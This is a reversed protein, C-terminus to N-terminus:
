KSGTCGFIGMFGRFLWDGDTLTPLEELIAAAPGGHCVQVRCVMGARQMIERTRKQRQESYRSLAATLANRPLPGEPSIRVVKELENVLPASSEIAQNAGVTGLSRNFVPLTDKFLRVRFELQLTHSLRSATNHRQHLKNKLIISKRRLDYM